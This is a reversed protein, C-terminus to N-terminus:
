QPDNSRAVCRSNKRHTERDARRETQGDCKRAVGLGNLIYFYYKGGYSLAIYTEIKQLGFNTTGLKPTLGL